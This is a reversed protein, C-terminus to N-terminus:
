CINKIPIIQSNVLDLMANILKASEFSKIDEPRINRISIKKADLLYKRMTGNLLYTSPTIWNSGDYFVINSFSTDTIFGNKVILIEDEALDKMLEKFNNRDQFKYSYDIDDATVLRLSNIQRPIYPLFEISHLIKSYVVRCKYIGSDLDAPLLILESLDAADQIDFLEKRSRNLRENHYGINQLQWNDVKISEILRCM